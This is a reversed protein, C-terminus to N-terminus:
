AAGAHKVGAAEAFLYFGNEAYREGGWRSMRWQARVHRVEPHQTLDLLLLYSGCYYKQPFTALQRWHLQDSSGWISVDLSQQETIRTIGLTLVLPESQSPGLAVEGGAGDECTVTEALLMIKM